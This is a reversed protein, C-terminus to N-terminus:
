DETVYVTREASTTEAFVYVTRDEVDEQTTCLQLLRPEHVRADLGTTEFDACLKPLTWLEALAKELQGRTTIYNINMANFFSRKM